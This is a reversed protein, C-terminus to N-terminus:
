SPSTVYRQAIAVTATAQAFSFRFSTFRRSPPRRLGLSTLCHRAKRFLTVRRHDSAAAGVDWVGPEENEGSGDSGFQGRRRHGAERDSGDHQGNRDHAPYRRSGNGAQAPKGSWLNSGDLEETRRVDDIPRLFDLDM